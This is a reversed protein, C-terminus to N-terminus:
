VFISFSSCSWQEATVLAVRRRLWKLQIVAWSVSCSEEISSSCDVNALIKFFRSSMLVSYSFIASRTDSCSFATASKISYYNHKRYYNSCKSTQADSKIM